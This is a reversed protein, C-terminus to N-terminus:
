LLFTIFVVDILDGTTFRAEKLRLGTGLGLFFLGCAANDADDFPVPSCVDAM